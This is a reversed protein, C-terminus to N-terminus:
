RKVTSLLESKSEPILKLPLTISEHDIRTVHDLTVPIIVFSVTEGVTTSVPEIGSLVVILQPCVIEKVTVSLSVLGSRVEPAITVLPVILLKAPAPM